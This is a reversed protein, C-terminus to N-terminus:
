DHFSTLVKGPTAGTFLGDRIVPIGNVIVHSIGDAYSHPSQFTATDKVTRSDFVVLDAWLGPAIRGRQSLGLRQAPLFTMKRIAEELSVIQKNRVYRDIFRPFTGYSRPHPKGVSLVGETSLSSGDSGVAVWRGGAITEVDSEDLSHLVVQAQGDRYLRIAADNPDCSMLRSIELLSLGEYQRNAPYNAVVVSDSGGRRYYNDTISAHLKAYFEEDALKAITTERGGVEAWRPFVAGNLGTSSATYPYQDAAVDIGETRAREIRELLERSRGWVPPGVCKLHSIQVRVESLRGIAITEEISGFLSISYDSEDRMHTSYLKSRKAAEKALVVVEDTRAYNGPAYYLGTSFGLAGADLCDATLTQMQTLEEPTPARDDFGLVAARITGHGVQTALNITSGAQELRELYEGFYTWDLHPEVGFMSIRQEGIERAQGILPACFSSGCNGTLELTCGQRLKSQATGDLLFSADSHTHLDIFGPAVALGTADMIELAENDLQGIAVLRGKAVAVDAVYSPTGTGDLITGGKILLDYM